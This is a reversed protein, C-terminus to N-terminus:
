EVLMSNKIMWHRALADRQLHDAISWASTRYEFGHDFGVAPWSGEEDLHQSDAYPGVRCRWSSSRRARNGAARTAAAVASKMRTSWSSGPLGSVCAIKSSAIGQVASFMIM